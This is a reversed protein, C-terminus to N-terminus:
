GHKLTKKLQSLSVTEKNQLENQAQMHALLNNEDVYTDPDVTSIKVQNDPLLRLFDVIKSYVSDQIELNLLKM